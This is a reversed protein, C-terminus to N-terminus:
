RSAGSARNGPCAAPHLRTKRRCSVASGSHCMVPCVAKTSGVEFGSEGLRTLKSNRVMATSSQLLNIRHLAGEGGDDLTGGRPVLCSGRLLLRSERVVGCEDSRKLGISEDRQGSEHLWAGVHQEDEEGVALFFHPPAHARIRPLLIAVRLQRADLFDMDTDARGVLRRSFVCGM